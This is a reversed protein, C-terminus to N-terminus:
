FRKGGNRFTIKEVQEERGNNYQISSINVEGRYKILIEKSLEVSKLSSLDLAELCYYNRLVNRSSMRNLFELSRISNSRRKNIDIINNILSPLLYYQVPVKTKICIITSCLERHKACISLINEFIDLSAKVLAENDNDTKNGIFSLYNDCEISEEFNEPMNYIRLEAGIKLVEQFMDEFFRRTNESKESDNEGYTVKLLVFFNGDTYEFVPAEGACEQEKKDRIYNYNSLSTDRSHNDESIRDEEKVVYFRFINVFVTINIIVLVIIFVYSPIGISNIVSLLQSYALFDGLVIMFIVFTMKESFTSKGANRVKQLINIPFKM